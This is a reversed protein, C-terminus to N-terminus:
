RAELANSVSMTRKCEGDHGLRSLGGLWCSGRGISLDFFVLNMHSRFVEYPSNLRSSPRSSVMEMDVHAPRLCIGQDSAASARVLEAEERPARRSNWLM